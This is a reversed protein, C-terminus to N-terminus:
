RSMGGALAFAIDFEADTELTFDVVITSVPFVGSDRVPQAVRNVRVAAPQAGAPLTLRLRGRAARTGAQKQWTLRYHVLGDAERGAVPQTLVYRYWLDRSGGSDVMIFSAFADRDDESALVEPDGSSDARSLLRSGAIFQRSAGTLPAGKPVVVRVYDWYCMNTLDDYNYGADPVRQVCPLPPPTGGHRYTVTLANQATLDPRLSVDLLYASTVLANAKNFGVNSDVVMLYNPAQSRVAGDWGLAGLSDSLPSDGPWIAIHRQQLADYVGRALRAGDVPGGSVVRNQIAKALQGVFGKRGSNSSLSTAPLWSERLFAILNDATVSEPREAGVALPAFAAVVSQVAAQDVAIVGDISRQQGAAFLDALTRASTPFDPSWNADRFLWTGARMIRQLADPPQPYTRTLDDVAYSDMFILESIHGHDVTVLGVASVFGGTARLEDENQAVVLYSRPAASGLLDPAVLSGDAALQALPVMPVAREFLAATRPSLAAPDIRSQWTAARALYARALAFQDHALALPEVAREMNLGADLVPGWGDLLSDAAAALDLSWNLLAEGQAADAGIAPLSRLAPLLPFLPRAMSRLSSLDARIAKVSLRGQRVDIRGGPSAMRSLLQVQAQLDSVRLAARACVGLVGVTILLLGLWVLLRPQALRRPSRTVTRATSM